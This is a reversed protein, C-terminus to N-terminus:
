LFHCRRAVYNRNKANRVLGVRINGLFRRSKKQRLLKLPAAVTDEDMVKRCGGSISRAEVLELQDGVPLFEFFIRAHFESNNTTGPRLVPVQGRGGSGPYERWPLQLQFDSPRRERGSM